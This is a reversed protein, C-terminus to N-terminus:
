RLTSQIVGNFLGFVVFFFPLVNSIVTFSPAFACIWQAWSALFVFFLVTMLYVYGSTASDTPLGCPWYWFVWYLTASVISVPIEVVASATTFAVWNYTRSPHERAQWLSLNQFFKPVVANVITPPILIIAFATFM